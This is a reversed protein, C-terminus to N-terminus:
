AARGLGRGSCWSVRYGAPAGYASYADPLGFHVSEIKGTAYSNGSSLISGVTPLGLWHDVEDGIEVGVGSRRALVGAEGLM